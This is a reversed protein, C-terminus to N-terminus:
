AIRPEATLRIMRSFTGNGSGQGINVVATGSLTKDALMDHVRRRAAPQMKDLAEDIMVWGPRHLLVRAFALLRLEDNSLQRDWRLDRNLMPVLRRLGLRELAEAFQTDAFADRGRPYCLLDRLLGPAFYPTNPVFMVADRPPMTISGRGWPWLGTIARFFLTKGAGPEGTIAVREGPAIEVHADELRTSGEPSIVVVDDFRVRGGEDVVFEIRSDSGRLEDMRLLASRFTAVRLLTARWDAIAPINDIFWRLSTNVQTFAGVAMMLGGFTLDGAFYVPSAIIIPAVVTAWGYGSTVWTLRVTARVIHRISAIVGGLDAQLRREEESEAGALSIADIHENIRMLSFRLEAERAYRESNYHILPRGALWSLSSATGAYLIAAWVMYGPIDLSREGFHFVFGESLSWLVGVFSALLVTSQLLGIGLAATLETLHRADEHLRQDPNVGIRGAQALRFARGPRMWEGFLDRALGDRLKLALMLNLWTQVVNLVLLVGAIQAFVLLQRYFDTLNRRQLADYFPQMWRNILIQGFAIAVIVVAIALVFGIIQNRLPSAMFARRMMALQESLGAEEALDAHGTRGVWDAM